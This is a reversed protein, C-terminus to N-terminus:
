HAHGCTSHDCAVKGMPGMAFRRVEPDEPRGVPYASAIKSLFRANFEAPKLGETPRSKWSAFENAMREDILKIRTEPYPHTSLFEPERGEGALSALIEMVQRMGIPNYGAREMYWMGLEDSESEQDRDFGKTAIEGFSGALQGIQESGLVAGIIVAGIQTGMARSFRDNVHRAAVHGVEHGLVGALQAENTMKRALGMSMFVKGGPMAFANVVDSDLLTFEWPLEGLSPDRLKATEVLKLGIETVYNRLEVRSVEGGMEKVMEAKGQTGLQIEEERSLANFQSRGTTPNTSCGTLASVACLGCLTAVAARVLPTLGRASQRAGSESAAHSSFRPAFCNMLVSVM